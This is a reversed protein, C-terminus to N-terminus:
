KILSAIEDKISIVLAITAIIAAYMAYRSASEAAKAQSESAALARSAILNADNAISLTREERTDRLAAAAEERKVQLEELWVKAEGSISPDSGHALLRVATEGGKEFAIRHSLERQM